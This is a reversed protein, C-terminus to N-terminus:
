GDTYRQQFEMGFTIQVDTSREFLFIRGRIGSTSANTTYQQLAGHLSKFVREDKHAGNVNLVSLTYARDWIIHLKGADRNNVNITSLVNVGLGSDVFVDGVTPLDEDDWRLLVFRALQVAADTNIVSLNMNMNQLKVQNGVRTIESNGQAIGGIEVFSGALTTATGIAVSAPIMKREPKVQRKLAGLQGRTAFKGKKKRGYRRKGFAM